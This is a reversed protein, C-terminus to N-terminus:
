KVLDVNELIQQNNDLHNSPSLETHEITNLWFSDNVDPTQKKNLTDFNNEYFNSENEIMDEIKQINLEDNENSTEEIIEQKEEATEYEINNQHIVTEINKISSNSVDDDSENEYEDLNQLLEKKEEEVEKNDIENDNQILSPKKFDVIELREKLKKNLLELESLKQKLGTKYEELNINEFLDSTSNSFKATKLETTRTSIESSCLRPLSLTSCHATDFRSGFSSIKSESKLKKNDSSLRLKAQKLSILNEQPLINVKIQGICNGISDQINYWGSLHSLGCILPTLDISASGLLKDNNRNSTHWIKLIFYKKDDLFYESDINTLFQQNWIPSSDQDCVTTKMIDLPNDLNVNFSVYSSVCTEINLDKEYVSPLHVAKDIEILCKIAKKSQKPQQKCEYLNEIVPISLKIQDTDYTKKNTLIKGKLWGLDKATNIIKLYDDHKTFRIAIELGGAFCNESIHVAHNLSHDGSKFSSQIPLWGCIGIRNELLAELPVACTGIL